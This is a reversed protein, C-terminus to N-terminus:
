EYFRRLFFDTNKHPTFWMWQAVQRGNSNHPHTNPFVPKHIPAHSHMVYIHPTFSNKKRAPTRIEFVFILDVRARHRRKPRKPASRSPSPFRRNTPWLWEELSRHDFERTRVFKYFCHMCLCQFGWSGFQHFMSQILTQFDVSASRAGIRCAQHHRQM